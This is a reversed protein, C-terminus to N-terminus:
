DGKNRGIYASGLTGVLSGIGSMLQARNAAKAQSAADARQQQFQEGGMAMQAQQYWNQSGLQDYGFQLNGLGLASQIDANRQGLSYQLANSEQQLAANTFLNRNQYEAQAGFQRNALEAATVGQYMGGAGQGFQEAQSVGQLGGQQLAQVAAQQQQPVLGAIAGARQRGIDSLAAERAGGRLGGLEAGQQAGRYVESTMEAQPAIARAMAAKDGGAIAGYYDMAKQYAPMGVGYMQQGATGMMRAINSVNGLAAQEQPTRQSYQQVQGWNPTGAGSVDAQNWAPGQGGLMSRVQSVNAGSQAGTDPAPGVNAMAAQRGASAKEAAAAEEKKAKGAARKKAVMSAVGMAVPILFAWGANSPCAWDDYDDLAWALADRIRAFLKM